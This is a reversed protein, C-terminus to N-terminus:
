FEKELVIKHTGKKSTFTEIVNFGFKINLLLMERRKNRSITRVKPYGLSEVKEHQRRMLESAIGKGRFDAHVGGLWSYFTNNAYEYGIKFGVVRNGKLAVFILLNKKETLKELGLEAGEFVHKHLEMIGILVNNEPIEQYYRYEM